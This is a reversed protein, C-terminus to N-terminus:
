ILQFLDFLEGSSLNLEYFEKQFIEFSIYEGKVKRKTLTDLKEAILNNTDKSEKVKSYEEKSEKVKSEKVKSQANIDVIIDSQTSNNNDNVRKLKMRESNNSCYDKRRALVTQELRKTFNKSHLYGYDIQFLDLQICYNIVEKLEDADCDYEPTLLEISLDDWKLEFYEADGLLELTINFISYGLHKYKRRLAKIKVDNRMHVDHSFYEANQKTPRAM